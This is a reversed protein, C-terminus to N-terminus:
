RGGQIETDLGWQDASEDVVTAASTVSERDSRGTDRVTLRLNVEGEGSPDRGDKKM